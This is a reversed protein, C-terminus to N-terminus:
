GAAAARGRAGALVPASWRRPSRPTSSRRRRLPLAGGARRRRSMAARYPRDTTMASYADCALIIRSGIPIARARSATRTARATSASTSTASSARWPAWARSPACSASASRGPARADLAWEEPDLAAPKHLVRDPIAVQRHRAAGRGDRRARDRHTSALAVAVTRALEVVAESHEGTYRDRENLAGALAEVVATHAPNADQEGDELRVSARAGGLARARDLGAAADVLLDDLTAGAQHAAVGASVTVFGAQPLDGAELEAILRECCAQAGALSTGPMLVALEDAGTRGLM